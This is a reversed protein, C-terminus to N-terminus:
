DAEVQMTLFLARDADPGSAAGAVHLMGAKLSGATTYLNDVREQGSADQVVKQLVIRDFKVVEQGARKAVSNVAFSVRYESSLQAATESGEQGRVARNGLPEYSTWKTFDKLSEIVSDVENSFVSSSSAPRTGAERRDGALFLIFTIQVDRPPLDFSELLSGVKLLVSARDEIVLRNLKPHLTLSGEDTMVDQVLEAAESLPKYEVRFTRTRMPDSLEQAAVPLTCFVLALISLGLLWRKHTALIM